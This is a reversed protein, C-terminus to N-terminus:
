EKAAKKVFLKRYVTRGIKYFWMHNLVQLAIASLAHAALLWTPIQLCALGTETFGSALPCDLCLFPLNSFYGLLPSIQDDHYLDQPHPASVRGHGRPIDADKVVYARWIDIYFWTQLYNGYLIRSLFFSFFFAVGNAIQITTGEMQLARLVFQIDLFITSFEYLFSAPSYTM